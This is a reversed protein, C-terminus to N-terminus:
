CGSTSPPNRSDISSKPVNCAYAVPPGKGTAEAGAVSAPGPSAGHNERPSALTIQTTYTTRRRRVVWQRADPGLPRPVTALTAATLVAAKAAVSPSYAFVLCAALVGTIWVSRWALMAKTMPPEPHPDVPDLEVPRASTEVGGPVIWGKAWIAPLVLYATAPFFLVYLFAGASAAGAVTALFAITAVIRGGPGM